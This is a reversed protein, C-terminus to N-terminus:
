SSQTIIGGTAHAAPMSQHVYGASTEWEDFGEATCNHLVFTHETATSDSFVQLSRDSHNAWYAYFHCNDFMFNRGVAHNGVTKVLVRGTNSHHGQILTNKILCEQPAYSGASTDASFYLQGNLAAQASWESTGIVCNDMLLYSAGSSAVGEDLELSSAGAVDVQDSNLLGLFQCNKLTTGYARVVFSTLATDAAGNNVFSMNHFQCRQGTLDVLRVVTGTTTYIQIGYTDYGRVNPGGLGVMHTYRKTWDCEATETYTGPYVCLVDNRDATLADEGAALSHHILSANVRMDDRLWSYYASDEDVLFHVEGIGPGVGLTAMLWGLVAPDLGRGRRVLFDM